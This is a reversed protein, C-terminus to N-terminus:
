GDLIAEEARKVRIFQEKDPTDGDPHYKSKL